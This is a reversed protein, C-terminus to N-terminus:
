GMEHDEDQTVLTKLESYNKLGLKKLRLVPIRIRIKTLVRIPTM